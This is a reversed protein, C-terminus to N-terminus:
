EIVEDATALLTPPVTIGLAKATKLSILLELKTSQEIPLESPKAGKFIRDVYTAARRYSDALHQGYSMLGGAEVHERFSFVSPLRYKIALDAIRQREEVFVTDPAVIVADANQERMKSFASDIGEPTSAEVPLGVPGVGQMAVQLNIAIVANSSNSPNVLIAVRSVKPAVSLLMEVVKPSLDPSLNSLGTTNGGPRGLSAVFGSGVPDNSTAMVIPIIATAKQAAGIVPAGGAVIVDVKLDVLQTALAALRGAEGGAFRWEILLNRGEIYGLERMGRAFAGFRSTELLNPREPLALFGVRWIRQQQASAGTAASVVLLGVTSVLTRRDIM